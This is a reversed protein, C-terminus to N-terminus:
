PMSCSGCWSNEDKLILQIRNKFYYIQFVRDKMRWQDVKPTLFKLDRELHRDESFLSTINSNKLGQEKENEIVNKGTNIKNM